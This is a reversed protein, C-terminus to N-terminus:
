GLLCDADWVPQMPEEYLYLHDNDKRDANNPWVILLTRRGLEAGAKGGFLVTADGEQVDGFTFDFFDNGGRDTSPPCVDYAVADVGRGKLVATWYGTGAGVEVVSGYSEIRQLVVDNPVAFGISHQIPDVVMQQFNKMRDVILGRDRWKGLIHPIAAERDVHRVGKSDVVNSADFAKKCQIMMLSLEQEDPLVNCYVKLFAKPVIANINTHLIELWNGDKSSIRRRLLNADMKLHKMLATLVTIEQEARESYLEAKESASLTARDRLSLLKNRASSKCGNNIPLLVDNLFKNFRFVKVNETIATDKTDTLLEERCKKMSKPNKACFTEILVLATDGSSSTFSTNAGRSVLLRLML